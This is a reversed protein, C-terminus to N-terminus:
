VTEKGSHGPAAESLPALLATVDHVQDLRRLGAFVDAARDGPLGCSQACDMFKARLEEWSLERAPHGPPTDVRASEVGGGTLQAEVTVFGRTGYSKADWDPDEAACAMDEHAEIKEYLARVEPVQTAADSFSAIELSAFWIKAALAHQMSFKSELGTVPREFPLPRLAKPAVRCVLRDLKGRLPGIREEIIRVADIARHTAYCNPFKKLAVGPELITWPRGLTPAVLSADSAATGYAALFGREAELAAPAATFGNQILDAAIVASQAAWGSHFPKTMTGFNAQLGCATSAALGFAMRTEAESLGRHRALAALGCFVGLTGTAHFGKMYHGLGVGLSLKSGAELGIVYADIFARGTAPREALGAILAPIIVAAPHAPMMSLVDDFDLAAGFAGHLLASLAPSAAQGSGLLPCPGSGQAAAWGLLPPAVESAAGSLIVAITDAIVKKAKDLGADGIAATDGRSVFAALDATLGASM